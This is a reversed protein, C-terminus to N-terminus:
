KGAGVCAFICLLISCCLLDSGGACAYMYIPDLFNCKISRWHPGWITIASKQVGSQQQETCPSGGRLAHEGWSRCPSRLRWQLLSLSSQHTPLQQQMCTITSSDKRAHKSVGASKQYATRCACAAARQSKCLGVESTVQQLHSLREFLLLKGISAAPLKNDATACLLLPCSLCRSCCHQEAACCFCAAM